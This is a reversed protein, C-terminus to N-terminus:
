RTSCWRTGAHVRANSDSGASACARESDTCMTNRPACALVRGHWRTCVGDRDWACTRELRSPCQIKLM